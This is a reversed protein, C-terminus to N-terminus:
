KRTLYLSSNGLAARLKKRARLIIGRFEDLGIGMSKACEDRPLGQIDRLEIAQQYNAPLSALQVQMARVGEGRAINQSPTPLGDSIVDFLNQYSQSSSAIQNAVQKAEGGRKKAKESRIMDVLCNKTITTLWAQFADETTDEFTGFNQYVRVFAQQLVDEPDIRSVLEAPIKRAVIRELGDYNEFLLEGLANQDGSKAKSLVDGM